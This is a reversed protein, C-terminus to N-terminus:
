NESELLEILEAVAGDDHHCFTRECVAKVEPVANGPCFARDACKLMELDNYNDGIACITVKRGKAAYWGRIFNLMTGKTFKSSFLELLTPSSFTCNIKNGFMKQGIECIRQLTENDSAFVVKNWRNSTLTSLDVNENYIYDDSYVIWKVKPFDKGVLKVLPRLINGDTIIEHIYQKTENDFVCGGNCLLAPSNIVNDFDPFAKRMMHIVRGSSFSFLGGEAKFREVAAINEKVSRGTFTGDLDSMIVYNSLDKL